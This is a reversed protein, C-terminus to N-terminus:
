AAIPEAISTFWCRCSVHYPPYGVEDPDKGQKPSCKPCVREDSSTQVVNRVQVGQKRLENVYTREGEVIARTTETAAIMESRVVGFERSLRTRLDGMTMGTRYFDNISRQLFRRRNDTIDKV